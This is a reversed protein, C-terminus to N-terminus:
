NEKNEFLVATGGWSAIHKNWLISIRAGLKTRYFQTWADGGGDYALDFRVGWPRGMM